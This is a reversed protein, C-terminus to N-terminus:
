NPYGSSGPAAYLPWESIPRLIPGATCAEIRRRVTWSGHARALLFVYRRRGGPITGTRVGDADATAVNATVPLIRRVEYVVPGRESWVDGKGRQNERKAQEEIAARIDSEDQASLKIQAAGCAPLLLLLALMRM